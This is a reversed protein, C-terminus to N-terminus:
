GTSLSRHTSSSCSTKPMHKEKRQDFTGKGKREDDVGNSTKRMTQMYIYHLKETLGIPGRSIHINQDKILLAIEKEIEKNKMLLAKENEKAKLLLAQQEKCKLDM